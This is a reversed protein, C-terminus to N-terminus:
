FFQLQSWFFDRQSLTPLWQQGEFGGLWLTLRFMLFSARISTEGLPIKWPVAFFVCLFHGWSIVWFFGLFVDLDFWVLKKWLGLADNRFFRWPVTIELVKLSCIVLFLCRRVTMSLCFVPRPGRWPQPLPSFFLLFHDLCISGRPLSRYLLVQNEALWIGEQKRQPNGQSPVFSFSWGFSM